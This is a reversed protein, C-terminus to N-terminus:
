FHYQFDAGAFMADRFGLEVQASVHKHLRFNLAMMINVVAMVPPKNGRERHPNQATDERSSDETAKLQAERNPNNNLYIPMHNAPNPDAGNVIPYCKSTDSFTDKNCVNNSNNTVLVDGFVVGLGLGAGGRLELWNNFAYHGIIAVDASLFSLKDFQVFKTDLSADNGNALWNGDNMVLWSFDLSTVVDFHTYRHIYQLGVAFSNLSTASQLYPKLMLETVFLYHAYVGMAHKWDLPDFKKAPATGDPTTAAPQVTYAPDGSSSLSKGHRNKAGPPAENDDAEGPPKPEEKQAVAARQGLTWTACLAALILALRRSAIQMTIM